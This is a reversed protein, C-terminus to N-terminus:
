EKIVEFNLKVHVQPHLKLQASHAGLTKVEEDLIIKKRDVDVDFQEKLANALQVNTVSGFIKDTTGAKAGIKVTENELKQAIVRYVELLADEKAQEIRQLQGLKNRNTKNAIIAFKQPILFNRGFGDKVKVIEHKDGVNEID